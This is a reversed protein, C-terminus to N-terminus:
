HPSERQTVVSDFCSVAGGRWPFMVNPAMMAGDTTVLTKLNRDNYQKVLTMADTALINGQKYRLVRGTVYVMGENYSLVRGTVYCTGQKNSM